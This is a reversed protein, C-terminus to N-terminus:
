PSCRRPPPHGRRRRRPVAQQALGVRRQVAGLVLPRSQTRPQPPARGREAACCAATAARWWPPSTSSCAPCGCAARIPSTPVPGSPGSNKRTGDYGQYNCRTNGYRFALAALRENIRAYPSAGVNSLPAMGLSFQAHGQAQAWLMVQAFLFDMTSRPADAVHRMLDVSAMGGPGHPPVVNAFAILEEDRRVLALPGQAPYAPDFRGLSFGKAAARAALWADSVREVDALLATDFPPQLLEFRLKEKSARNVAQRLDEWRKGALPSSPWVCAPWNAWSSCTSATTTTARCSRSCCKTSCRCATRATPMAASTSSPATSAAAPVAPRAWHWWATACRALGGGGPPRRGLIPPKDAMFSLHAFEGGGHQRYVERAEALEGPTPLSPAPRRVALSQWILYLVTSLTAAALSRGLRSAHEGYGFDFLDFSDDGLM